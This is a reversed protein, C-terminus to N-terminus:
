ASERDGVCKGRAFHIRRGDAGAQPATVFGWDAGFKADPDSGVPIVDAGPIAAFPWSDEYYTGAEILAVSHSAEALRVALTVGATGGGVVVYDFTEAQFAGGLLDTAILFSAFKSISINM